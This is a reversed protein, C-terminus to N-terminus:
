RRFPFKLHHFWRTIRSVFCVYGRDAARKQLSSTIWITLNSFTNSHKLGPAWHLERQLPFTQEQETMSGGGRGRGKLAAWTIHTWATYPVSMSMKHPWSTKEWTHVRETSTSERTEQSAPFQSFFHWGTQIGTIRVRWFVGKLPWNMIVTTVM